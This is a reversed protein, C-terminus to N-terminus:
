EAASRARSPDASPDANPDAGPEPFREMAEGQEFLVYQVKQAVAEERWLYRTSGHRTWRTRDREAPFAKNLRRTAATKLDNLVREPPGTATVVVHVHNSRVHVAHLTWGKRRAIECLANLTVKRRPGDLYYPPEALTGQERAQRGADTPLWPTGPASHEDDVSGRDDGHLWTGYCTFTLFYAMPDGM